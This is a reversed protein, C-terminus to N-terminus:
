HLNKESFKIICAYKSKGNIRFRNDTRKGAIWIIDKNDCLIWANEKDKLSYGADIFFDSLKKFGKMGFPIFRDGHRWRRLTLPFQLKNYDFTATSPEKSISFNGTILTKSISLNVPLRSLDDNEFIRFVTKEDKRSRYIVLKNRDKVLVYGTKPAYFKKGSESNLANFIEESIVPTFGYTKLLEYLQSKPAEQRLLSEISIIANGNDYSQIIKKNDELANEYIKEVDALYNSTRALTAKISPNIKEMMPLLQLRIYNRKYETALNSSDTVSPLQNDQIFQTIEDKSVCLLPRVIMNNKPRIGSLGRIGTGRILNLLMTEVSDDRHHAVAIAQANYKQRLKEFWNYRLERAAMEISIHHIVAYEKTNFSISEFATIGYDRAFKRCFDEDRNSEDGRLMFNCHAAICKFGLRNLIFLLAVSDSGGSFGAIISQEWTLLKEHEIFSKIKHIV